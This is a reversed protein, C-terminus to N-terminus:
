TLMGPFKNLIRINLGWRLGVSDPIQTTPKLMAGLYTQCMSFKSFWQHLVHRSNFARPGEAPRGPVTLASLHGQDEGLSASLTAEGM